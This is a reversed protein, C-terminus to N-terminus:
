TQLKRDIDAFVVSAPRTHSEGSDYRAIRERIESDWINKVDESSQPEGIILLQHILTLRQDEPLHKAEQLIQNVSSM